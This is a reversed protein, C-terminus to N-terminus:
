TRSLVNADTHAMRRGYIELHTSQTYSLQDGALHYRREFALTRAHQALYPAQSIPYNADGARLELTVEEGSADASGGAVLSLGRRIALTQMVTAQADDWILFGAENHFVEDNSQRHVVQNYRLMVLDQEGANDVDGAPAFILTEYYASTEDGEPEPSVDVGQGGQWTGIFGALPGYDISGTM